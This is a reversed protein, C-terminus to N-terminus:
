FFSVVLLITFVLKALKKKTPDNCECNYKHNKSLFIHQHFIRKQRYNTKKYIMSFKNMNLRSVVQYESKCSSVYTSVM